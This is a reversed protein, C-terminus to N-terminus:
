RQPLDEKIQNWLTDDLLKAAGLMAATEMLSSVQIVLHPYKDNLERRFATEMLHWSRAINGGIVLRDVGFRALWPLLFEALNAGCVSFLRQAEENIPALEALEKVGNVKRGTEQRYTNVFWRTSFYDDAMGERFPLHWLSGAPPVGVGRTVPIGSDIFTSGFGTGLTIALMKESASWRDLYATGLGFATADNIFRLVVNEFRIYPAFEQRVNIGYLNEYKDNGEFLAIGKRYNFAGPMAFGIGAVATSNLMQLTRNITGAWASFIEEKTGKRDLKREFRTGELLAHSRLDVGCCVIHSGGIDVGIASSM